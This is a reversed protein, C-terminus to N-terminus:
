EAAAEAQEEPAAKAKSTNAVKVETMKFTEADGSGKRTLKFKEANDVYRIHSKLTSVIKGEAYPPINGGAELKAVIEEITGGEMLAANMRASFSSGTRKQVAVGEVRAATQRQPNEAPKATLEAITARTEATVPDKEELIDLAEIIKAKLEAVPKTVDIPPALDMVENLDKAAAVLAARAVAM